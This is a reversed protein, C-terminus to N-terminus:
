KQRTSITCSVFTKTEAGLDFSPALAPTKSSDLMQHRVIQSIELPTLQTKRQRFNHRGQLM